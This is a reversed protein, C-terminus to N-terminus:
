PPRLAEREGGREKGHCGSGKARNAGGRAGEEARDGRALERGEELGHKAGVDRAECCLLAGAGESELAGRSSLRGERAGRDPEERVSVSAM